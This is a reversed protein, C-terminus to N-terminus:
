TGKFDRHISPCSYHQPWRDSSRASSLRAQGADIVTVYCEIASNGTMRKRGNPESLLLTIYHGNRGDVKVKILRSVSFTGGSSQFKVYTVEIAAIKALRSRRALFHLTPASCAATEQSQSSCWDADRVTMSGRAPM